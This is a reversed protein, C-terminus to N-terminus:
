VKRYRKLGLINLVTFLVLFLSLIGLLPFITAFGEGKVVIDTLAEGGYRLPIIFTFTQVWSPLNDLPVIGAFFIQPVIVIPIFQMMQFESNAFTSVFIGMVLAVLAIFINTLLVLLISGEIKMDLIWISFFVIVFTQLIAFIGYSTLYGLVLESRKIPTALLRELTGSTRENLLAIGSILFVFFFVFFGILVPFIKNFYTTDQNGYIYNTKINYHSITEQREPLVIGTQQSMQKLTTGVEQLETTLQQITNEMLARSFLAQVKSTDMVDDNQYYIHVDQDEVRIFAALDDEKVTKEIDEVNQYDKITLSDKQLLDELETPMNEIGVRTNTETSTNFALNMLTIIFLPAVLLLVLTRKDRIIQTIVRSVVALYRM